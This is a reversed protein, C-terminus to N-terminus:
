AWHMCDISGLMGPFGKEEGMALLRAIDAENPSRLYKEGFIEDVAAVFRRLSELATSEGIRVYEDTADAAVGYTIMRMAATIKQFCSLGLVGAGNRKQVFYDDHAEVANMICIFLERSMRYRFLVIGYSLL